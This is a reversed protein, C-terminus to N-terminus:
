TVKHMAEQSLTIPWTQGSGQMRNGTIWHMRVAAETLSMVGRVVQWHTTEPKVVCGTM